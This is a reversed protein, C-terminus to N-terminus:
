TWQPAGGLESRSGFGEVVGGARWEARGGGKAGHLDTKAKTSHANAAHQLAASAAACRSCTSLMVSTCMSWPVTCTLSLSFLIGELRLVTCTHSLSFFVDELRLVTCTLSLFCFARWVCCQARSLSLFSFVRWVCCQARSLSFVFCGGFAATVRAGSREGGRGKRGAGEGHAEDVGVDPRLGGEGM